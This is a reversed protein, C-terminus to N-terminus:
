NSCIVIYAQNFGDVNAVAADYVQKRQTYQTELEQHIERLSRLEQIVPALVSKQNKTIIHFVNIKVIVDEILASIEILANGKDQDVQSKKESVMELTEQIEHFGVIGNEQEIKHIKALYRAEDAQLIQTLIM